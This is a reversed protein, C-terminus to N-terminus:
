KNQEKFRKILEEPSLGIVAILQMVQETLQHNPYKVLFEEYSKKAQESNRLNEEYTFAKMFLAMPAREHDPYNAEVKSFMNIADEYRKISRAVEGGTFLYSPSMTDKPSALAFQQCKEVMESAMVKDLEKSGQSAFYAKFAEIDKKLDEPNIDAPNSTDEAGPDTKASETKCAALLTIAFLLLLAKKMAKNIYNSFGICFYM